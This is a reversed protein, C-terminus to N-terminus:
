KTVAHLSHDVFEYVEDSLEEIDNVIHSTIMLLKDKKKLDFIMEKIISVSKKDVGNFPEDLIIIEPDEMIAQIFSLKQKMGLSYNKVKENSEPDLNLTRMLEKIRTESIKNNIKALLCLNEFGSLHEIFFANNDMYGLSPLFYSNVGIKKDGCKVYGKSPSILGSVVKFFVSKGSVLLDKIKKMNLKNMNKM